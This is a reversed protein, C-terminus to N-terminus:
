SRLHSFSIVVSGRNLPFLMQLSEIMKEYLWGAERPSRRRGGFAIGTIFVATVKGLAFIDGPGLAAFTRCTEVAYAFRKNRRAPGIEPVLMLDILIYITRWTNLLNAYLRDYVRLPPYELFQGECSGPLSSDGENVKCEYSEARVVIERTRWQAHEALLASIWQQIQRASNPSRRLEYVKMAVHGTRHLLNDLALSALTWETDHDTQTSLKIWHRHLHDQNMPVPPFLPHRPFYLISALLDLRISFRWIQMLLPTPGETGPYRKTQIEQFILYLGRLHHNLAPRNCQQINLWVLMAVSIALAETIDTASISKQILGLAQQEHHFAPVLSRKLRSDAILHSVSLVSHFLGRNVTARHFIESTIRPFMAFYPLVLKVQTFFYDIYPTDDSDHEFLSPQKRFLMWEPISIESVDALDPTDLDCPIVALAESKVARSECIEPAVLPPDM